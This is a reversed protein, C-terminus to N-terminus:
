YRFALLGKYEEHFKKQKIRTISDISIEKTELKKDTIKM